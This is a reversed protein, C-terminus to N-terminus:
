IATEALSKVLVGRDFKGNANLPFHSMTRINRPVMYTPLRSKLRQILEATDFEDTQLFVEIGDAGSSSVPWGLAIVGDLGSASRVAAEIEGLEVRHGLM